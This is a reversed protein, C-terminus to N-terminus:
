SNSKSKLKAYQKKKFENLKRGKTTKRNNYPRKMSQGTIPNINGRRLSRRLSKKKFYSLGFRKVLSEFFDNFFSFEKKEEEM